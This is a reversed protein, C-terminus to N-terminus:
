FTWRLIAYLMVLVVVVFIWRRPGGRAPDVPTIWDGCRPCKQTDETVTARCNPCMMEPLADAEDNYDDSAM